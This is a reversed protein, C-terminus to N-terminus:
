AFFELMMIITRGNASANPMWPTFYPDSEKYRELMYYEDTMGYLENDRLIEACRTINGHKMFYLFWYYEHASVYWVDCRGEENLNYITSGVSKAKDPMRNYLGGRVVNRRTRYRIIREAESPAFDTAYILYSETAIFAFKQAIQENDGKPSFPMDIEDTDPQTSAYESWAGRVVSLYAEYEAKIESAREDGFLEAARALECLGVLNFADTNTWSQFVLPDDCSSMPPFLGGVLRETDETSLRTDRIWEYSRMAKDRYRYYYEAGRRAAYNAFSYLVTGTAMAWHIGLPVMEGHETFFANFYLDIIPEVYCDFDGLMTLSELVPMSEFPWVQRQLGGQREFFYDTDIIHCFCQLMQATLSLVTSLAKPDNKIRGPLNTIRGLEGHWFSLTENYAVEPSPCESGTRSYIFVVERSESSDLSIDSFASGTDRNYVFDVDGVLSITRTGDSYKGDRLEYSPVLKRWSELDSGYPCYVDPADLVLEAERATRLMFGVRRTIPANSKNQVRLKIYALSDIGPTAYVTILVELGDYGGVLSHIPVGDERVRYENSRFDLEGDGFLFRIGSSIIDFYDDGISFTNDSFIVKGERWLTYMRESMPPHFYVRTTKPRQWLANDM